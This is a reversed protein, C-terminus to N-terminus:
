TVGNCDRTVRDGVKVQVFVDNGSRIGFVSTWANMPMSMSM